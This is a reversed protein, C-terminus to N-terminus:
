AKGPVKVKDEDRSMQNAEFERRRARTQVVSRVSDVQQVRIHRRSMKCSEPQWSLFQVVRPRRPPILITEFRAVIVSVREDDKPEDGM